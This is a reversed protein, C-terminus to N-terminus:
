YGKKGLLAFMNQKYAEVGPQNFPNVGLICASMACAKQFFYVLYGYYYASIEPINIILNPIGGNNHALVSAKFMKENIEKISFGDLYNLEDLNDKDKKIIVGENMHQVHLITEFINKTGEQIYQGMSHLDTPFNAITPFIGKNEKGESEGFLQKWWQGFYYMSPEYNALIEITRGKNYLINRIAAYQYAHNHKFNSNELDKQAAGAGRMIEQIDIGSVAMPLLGVATLVSYRGGIDDPITFTEYGEKTAIKKLIGKEKDTTVYIRESAIKKGYKEEMYNKLIRFIIAPETTNGSKSVMNLSIDKGDIIELLDNLYKPSMNHGAFYIQPTKRKENDLLNYFSHNLMKIAGRAGLYSGGVGIVILIDSDQQIKKAVEQIRNFEERNYKEPFDMWALFEGQLSIKKHLERHINDLIDGMEKIEHEEIYNLAYSYDLSIKEL